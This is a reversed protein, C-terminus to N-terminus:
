VHACATVDVHVFHTPEWSVVALSLCSSGNYVFGPVVNCTALWRCCTYTSERTRAVHYVPVLLCRVRGGADIGQAVLPFKAALGAVRDEGGGRM